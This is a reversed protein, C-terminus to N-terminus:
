SLFPSRLFFVLARMVLRGGFNVFCGQRRGAADQERRASAAAEAEIRAEERARERLLAYEEQVESDSFFEQLLDAYHQHVMEAERPSVSGAM